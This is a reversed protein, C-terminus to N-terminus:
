GVAIALVGLPPPPAYSAFTDFFGALLGGAAFNGGAPAVFDADLWRSEILVADYGRVRLPQHAPVVARDAKGGRL